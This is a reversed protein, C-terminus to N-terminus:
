QEGIRAAGQCDQDPQQPYVEKDSPNQRDNRNEDVAIGPAPLQEYAYQAHHGADDNHAVGNGARYCDGHDEDQHEADLRQYNFEALSIEADPDFM